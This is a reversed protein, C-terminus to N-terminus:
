GWKRGLFFRKRNILAGVGCTEDVVLADTPLCPPHAIDKTPSLWDHFILNSIGSSVDSDQSRAKKAPDILRSSTFLSAELFRM